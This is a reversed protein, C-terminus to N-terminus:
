PLYTQLTTSSNELEALNPTQIGCNLLHNWYWARYMVLDYKEPLRTKSIYSTDMMSLEFLGIDM